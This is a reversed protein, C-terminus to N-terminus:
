MRQPLSITLIGAANRIISTTLYTLNLRLVRGLEEAQLIPEVSYFSNFVQCLSYLYTCLLHPLHSERALTIIQPWRSLTNLLEREKPTLQDITPIEFLTDQEAKRLISRARAYTYQIYPASNGDLALFRQWDFVLDQKRNQSLIGYSIAGIGMMEALSTADDTQVADGHEIIAAQARQVAEDLLQQLRLVNGKRTSMSKDAFRMRGVLVNEFYPPMYNLKTCTAALQEFHLKQAIDTVILITQPHLEETRYKMQAIDRTSYLTAGDAKQVLYPPLKTHEEDLDAILAGREGVTFIGQAIGEELVAGMKDQYFSEGKDSDFQVHLRKYLPELATKTTAVVTQWFAQLDEDGDELKKFAARARDDLEPRVEVETHFRVYYDFLDDITYAEIARGDGFEEVAVALKGFQTGYDGLYNWAIVPYGSYRYLNAIAQGVVTSLLHHVGLPKAINPQSYEVIVPEDATRVLQAAGAVHAQLAQQWLAIPTFTINIYGAGAVEAHAIEELALLDPLLAQAIEQPNKQLQKSIQLAIPTAIDATVGVAPLQFVVEEVTFGFQNQLSDRITSTFLKIM